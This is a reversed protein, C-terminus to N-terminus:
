CCVNFVLKSTVSKEIDIIVAHTLGCGFTALLPSPGMWLAPIGLNFLFETWKEYDPPSWVAPVAVVLAHSAAYLKLDILTQKRM